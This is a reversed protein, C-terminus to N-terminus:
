AGAGFLSAITKVVGSLDTPESGQMGNQGTWLGYRLMANQREADRRQTYFAGLGSRARAVDQGEGVALDAGIQGVRDQIDQIARATGYGVGMRLNTAISGSGGSFGGESLRQLADGEAIRGQDAAARMSGRAAGTVEKRALRYGGQIEGPVAEFERQAKGLYQRDIPQLFGELMQVGRRRVTSSSVSDNGGFGIGGISFGGDGFGM